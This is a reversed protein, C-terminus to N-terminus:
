AASSEIGSNLVEGPENPEIELWVHGYQGRGGSQKVFRGESRVSKRVTEKYAVQPNGINAGLGFERSLRDVIIELHLEGMGSILTQGTEKDVKVKFSPDERAIKGLAVGLKEEDSKTKPEIAIAIVPDPFHPDRPTLSQRMDCLTDGTTTLNLGVAAAIDGTRVEKIEERKNAHMKLIRGMRERKKKSANYM